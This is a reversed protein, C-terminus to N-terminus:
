CVLLSLSLSLMIVASHFPPLLKSVARLSKNPVLTEPSIDTEKCSFCTFDNELLYTRIGLLACLCM